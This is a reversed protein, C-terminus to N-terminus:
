KMRREDIKDKNDGLCRFRPIWEWLDYTGGVRGISWLGDEIYCYDCEWDGNCRLDKGATNNKCSYWTINQKGDNERKGEGGIRGVYERGDWRAGVGRDGGHCGVGGGAVCGVVDFREGWVVGGAGDQVVGFDGGVDRAEGRFSASGGVGGGRSLVAHSGVSVLVFEDM